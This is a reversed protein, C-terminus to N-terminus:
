DLEFLENIRDATSELTSLAKSPPHSTQMAPHSAYNRLRRASSWWGDDESLVVGAEKLFELGNGYDPLDNRHRDRVAKPVWGLEKAKLRVAAELVRHLQETGLTLLPYCLYGYIIASRAVEFLSRIERPAADTIQFKRVERLWALHDYQVFFLTGPVARAFNQWVSATELWDLEDPLKIGLGEATDSM